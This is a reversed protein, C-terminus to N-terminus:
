CDRHYINNAVIKANKLRKSGMQRLVAINLPNSKNTPTVSITNIHALIAVTDQAYKTQLLSFANPDFLRAYRWTGRNNNILDRLQKLTAENQKMYLASLLDETSCGMILKANIFQPIIHMGTCSLHQEFLMETQRTDSIDALSYLIRGLTGLYIKHGQYAEYMADVEAKQPELTSLPFVNKMFSEYRSKFHDSDWAEFESVGEVIMNVDDSIYLEGNVEFDELAKDSADKGPDVSPFIREEILDTSRMNWVLSMTAAISRPTMTSHLGHLFIKCERIMDEDSLLDLQISGHGLLEDDGWDERGPAKGVIEAVGRFIERRRLRPVRAAM